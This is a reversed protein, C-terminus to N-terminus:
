APDLLNFKTLTGSGSLGYTISGVLNPVSNLPITDHSKNIRKIINIILDPSKTRGSIGNYNKKLKM